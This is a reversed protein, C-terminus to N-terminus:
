DQSWYRAHVEGLALRDADSSLSTRARALADDACQRILPSAEPALAKLAGLAKQVQICVEILSAGDRAIPRFFDELLDRLSLEPLRVGPYHGRGPSPPITLLASLVRLGAGVVAIASGPDNVAPSLARSAIESLVVLGFRPDHDFQRSDEVTFAEALQRLTEPAPDGMVWALPRGPAVLAGPSAAVNIRLTHRVAIRALLPADIHTVYGIADAYVPAADADPERQPATGLYPRHALTLVARLAAKEVREITELMRGFHSLHEIWRLLTFVIFAIVCITGVFLIVRGKAGYAGTALACLGVIAFLFAGIFTSLANQATADEILLRTARPTITSAAGAYAAVMTSMSFTAVALMSSALIELINDVADAGIKTSLDYPVYPALVTALLALGVSLTSFLGARLWIRRSAQQLIRKWKSM